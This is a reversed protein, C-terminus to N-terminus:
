SPLLGLLTRHEKEELALEQGYLERLLALTAHTVHSGGRKALLWDLRDSFADCDRYRRWRARRLAPVCVADFEKPVRPARESPAIVSRVRRRRELDKEHSDGLPFLIRGTLLEWLLIGMSYVSTRHDLIDGRAQEPTVYSRAGSHEGHLHRLLMALGANLQAKGNSSITVLAPSITAFTRDSIMRNSHALGRSVESVIKAAADVPFAIREAACKNWLDRLNRCGEASTAIYGRNDVEGADLVSVVNPHPEARQLGLGRSVFSSTEAPEALIHVIRLENGKALRVAALHSSFDDGTPLDRLLYYCGFKTYDRVDPM